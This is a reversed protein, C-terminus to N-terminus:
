TQPPKQFITLRPTLFLFKRSIEPLIPIRSPLTRSRAPSRVPVHVPIKKKLLILVVVNKRKEGFVIM